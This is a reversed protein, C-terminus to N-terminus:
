VKFEPSAGKNFLIQFGMIDSSLIRAVRWTENGIVLYDTPQPKDFTSRDWDTMFIFFQAQDSRGESQIINGKDDLSTQNRVVTVDFAAGTEPQGKQLPRIYKAKEAFENSNQFVKRSDAAIADRFNM